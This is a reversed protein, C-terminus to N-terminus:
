TRYYTLCWVLSGLVLLVSCGVDSEQDEGEAVCFPFVSLLRQCWVTLKGLFLGAGRPFCLHGWIFQIFQVPVEWADQQHMCQSTRAPGGASPPQSGTQIGHSMTSLVWSCCTRCRSLVGDHNLTATVIYIKFLIQLIHERSNSTMKLICMHPTHIHLHWHDWLDFSGGQGLHQLDSDM